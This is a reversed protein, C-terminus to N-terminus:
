GRAASLRGMGVLGWREGLGGIIPAPASAPTGRSITDIATQLDFTSRSIVKLVDATATQQQLSERVPSV